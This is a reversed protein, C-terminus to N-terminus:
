AFEEVDKGEQYVGYTGQRKAILTAHPKCFWEDKAMPISAPRWTGKRKCFEDTRLIMNCDAM